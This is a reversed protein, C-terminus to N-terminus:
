NDEEGIDAKYESMCKNCTCDSDGADRLRKQLMDIVLDSYALEAELDEIYEDSTIADDPMINM